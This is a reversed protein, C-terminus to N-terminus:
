EKAGSENDREYTTLTVDRHRTVNVVRGREARAERLAGIVSRWEAIAVEEQLQKRDALVANGSVMADFENLRREIDDLQDNTLQESV